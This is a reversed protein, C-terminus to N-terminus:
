ADSEVIKLFSFEKQVLYMLIKSLKFITGIYFVARETQTLTSCSQQFLRLSPNKGHLGPFNKKRYFFYGLQTHLIM